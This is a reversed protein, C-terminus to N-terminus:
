AGQRAHFLLHLRARVSFGGVARGRPTRGAATHDGAWRGQRRRIGARPAAPPVARLHVRSVARPYRPRPRACPFRLTGRAPQCCRYPAREQYTAANSLLNAWVQRLRVGDCRVRPLSRPIRVDVRSEALRASLTRLVEEVLRQMDVESWALELRGLRSYEFLADLQEGSRRSLWPLSELHRKAEADFRYVMVRDFGTLARVAEAVSQLLAQTGRVGPLPSFLRRVLELAHEEAHPVTEAPERECQSSDLEPASPPM